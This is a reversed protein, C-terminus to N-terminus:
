TSARVPQTVWVKGADAAGAVYAAMQVPPGTVVLERADASQVPGAVVEGHSVALHATLTLSDPQVPERLLLLMRRATWVAREPDNEHATPAGFVVTLGDQRRIVSGQYENAIAVLRPMIYALTEFVAEDDANPPASLNLWVISAPRWEGQPTGTTAMQAAAAHEPQPLDGRTAQVHAIAEEALKLDYAAGLARLKQVAHGLVELAKELYEAHQQASDPSATDALEAYLCGLEFLAQGERYTSQQQSCLQVCQQLLDEAEAYRKMRRYLVGKTRLCDVESQSMGIERAKALAEEVAELAKSHEGKGALVLAILWGIQIREDDGVADVLSSAVEVYAAADDFRSEVVALHALGDAAQFTDYDEGLRKSIAFSAELDKRAQAHDGMALHLLGLNHLNLAQGPLYGIDRRLTTSREFNEAAKQWMGQAYYLVGLNTYANAMGFSYGLRKYLDLSREVHLAADSLKGQQWCIGGLTNHLSAFTILDDDHAQDMGFTASSALAFADPLRGQRFRVWAFRDMLSRWLKQQALTGSPGLVDLAGELHTIAEDLAGERQRVDALERLGEVLAITVDTGAGPATTAAQQRLNQAVDTLVGGAESFEGAFKLAMGLGIQARALEQEYRRPQQQMLTIARRYHQIATENSYRRSASDAAVILYPIAKSPDPGETYHYALIEVKEDASWFDANEIAQAVQEHLRQRDRKLLTGYIAEQILAHHFVYGHELGFPEGKLFRREELEALQGQVSEPDTDSLARLLDTPFSRGIVSAIQLVRRAVASLRDYRALILGRLTGPVEQLLDLAKPTAQWIRGTNELGGQDVLIRIIEEIYFPLGEARQAIQGELARTMDTTQGLLEDILLLAEDSSLPQLQVDVLGGPDKEAAAILPAIVTKREQDRSVLILMLPVDGTTQLFNEIFDRSAPDVWHLDEFIFVSPALQAEALLMQRLAIHTQRQLMQPDMLRLRASARPDMQRLGLIHSLYPLIEDGNAFRRNAYSQLARMQEDPATTSSVGLINRIMEAVVWFPRSRAYALCSGEFINLEAQSVSRRFETVLRSKGLGAEGTVLVVQRYRWECVNGLAAQMLALAGDRGIMPVQLGPLGRTTTVGMVLSTPKFVPISEGVDTSGIPPLADYHFLPRTRQYTNFSVLIDGPAAAPALRAAMTVTDGIVTYETRLDSRVAGVIVLGTNIGIRVQFDLGYKQKVRERLPQLAAQMDLAARVAREPDNEHIIPAGFLAMLEDGTFKDVTGEYDYVVNVLSRMTEDILLYVEESDLSRSGSTVNTADVLLVTVERREGAPQASAATMKASLASPMMARLDQM